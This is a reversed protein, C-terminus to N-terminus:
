IEGATRTTGLGKLWLFIAELERRAEPWTEELLLFEHDCGPVVSLRTPIGAEVLRATMALSQPLLGDRDGCVLCCPPFRDLTPALIPSALPNRHRSVFNPGLYALNWTTEILGGGELKGPAQFMLPFDFVGYLFVCGAFGPPEPGLGHAAGAETWGAEPAELHAAVAAAGINAGASDGAVILREGDGGFGAAHEALWRCAFIADQVAWPFPHEPALGYDLNVTLYGQAAFRMALRRLHAPSWLCWSGGHLYLLSPFPGEGEPVYIEATLAVTDRERLTVRDEFRALEPLNANLHSLDWFERAAPIEDVSRRPRPEVTRGLLASIWNDAVPHRDPDEM